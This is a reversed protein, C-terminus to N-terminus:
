GAHEIITVDFIWRQASSVGRRDNDTHDLCNIPRLDLRQASSPGSIM